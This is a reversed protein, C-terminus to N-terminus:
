SLLGAFRGRDTPNMRGLLSQVQELPSRTEHSIVPAGIMRESKIGGRIFRRLDRDDRALGAAEKQILPHSTLGFPAGGRFLIAQDRAIQEAKDWEEALAAQARLTTWITQAGKANLQMGGRHHASEFLLILASGDHRVTARFRGSTVSSPAAALGLKAKEIHERMGRALEQAAQYHLAGALEGNLTILVARGRHQISSGATTM